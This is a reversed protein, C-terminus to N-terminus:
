GRWYLYPRLGGFGCHVSSRNARHHAKRVIDSWRTPYGTTHAETFFDLVCNPLAWKKALLLGALAGNAAVADRWGLLGPLLGMGHLLGVLYAEDPNIDVMEEAVLKSCVAIERSHLWFEAMAPNAADRATRQSMAELCVRLGLASVCDEIRSPRGEAIGYERGALRLVELTAGVDALVVRSIERLDASPQQALLDLVLLTESLVPVSPLNHSFGAQAPQREVLLSSRFQLELAPKTQVTGDRLV